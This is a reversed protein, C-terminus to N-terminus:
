GKSGTTPVFQLTSDVGVCCCWVIRNQKCKTALRRIISSLRHFIEHRNNNTESGAVNHTEYHATCPIPWHPCEPQKQKNQKAYECSNTNQHNLSHLLRDKKALRTALWLFFLFELFVASAGVINIIDWTWTM